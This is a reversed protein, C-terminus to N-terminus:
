IACCTPCTPKRLSVVVPLLPMWVRSVVKWSMPAKRIAVRSWGLAREAHRQGGPALGKVTGAMFLRRASGKLSRATEMFLAKLSDTLEM